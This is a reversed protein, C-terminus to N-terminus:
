DTRRCRYTLTIEGRRKKGAAVIQAAVCEAETRPERDEVLEGRRKMGWKIIEGAFGDPLSANSIEGHRIQGCRIIEAALAKPNRIGFDYSTAPLLEGDHLFALTVDFKDDVTQRTLASERKKLEQERAAIQQERDDLAAYIGATFSTPYQRKPRALYAM